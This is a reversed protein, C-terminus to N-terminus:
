EVGNGGCEGCVDGSVQGSGSCAACAGEVVEPVANAQELIRQELAAVARDYEGPTMSAIRREAQEEAIGASESLARLKAAQEDTLGGHDVVDADVAPMEDDTYTGGLEAPFAKRLALAEACKALMVHPKQKWQPNSTDAYEAWRATATFPCRHGKTIRYVTVTAQVIAGDKYVFVADDSGAYEDTEAAKSRYGDISVQITLKKRGARKDFRMIAYIQKSIPDLGLRNCSQFFYDIELDTAEQLGFQERILEVTASDRELVAGSTTGTTVLESM